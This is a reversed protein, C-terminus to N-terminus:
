IWLFFYCSVTLIVHVFFPGFSPTCQACFSRQVFFFCVCVRYQSALTILSQSCKASASQTQKAETLMMMIANCSARMSCVPSIYISKSHSSSRFIFHIYFCLNYFAMSIMHMRNREIKMGDFNLQTHKSFIM